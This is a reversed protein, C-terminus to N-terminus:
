VSHKQKFNSDDEKHPHSNFINVCLTILEITSDDEKHPHSNFLQSLPRKEPLQLDDEKHPHSNFFRGSGDQFMHM